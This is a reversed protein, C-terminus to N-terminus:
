RLKLWLSEKKPITGDKITNQNKKKQTVINDGVKLIFIYHLGNSLPYKLFM